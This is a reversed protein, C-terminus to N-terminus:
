ITKQTICGYCSLALPFRLNNRARGALPFQGSKKHLINCLQAYRINRDILMCNHDPSERGAQRIIMSGHRRHAPDRMHVRYIDAHRRIDVRHNDPIILASVDALIFLFLDEDRHLLVRFQQFIDTLIDHYTVSGGDKTCIVLRCYGVNHSCKFNKRLIRVDGVSLNIDAEHRIFLNTKASCFRHIHASERHLKGIGDVATFLTLKNVLSKVRPIRLEIDGAYRCVRHGRFVVRHVRNENRMVKHIQQIAALSRLM